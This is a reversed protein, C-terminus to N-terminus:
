QNYLFRGIWENFYWSAYSLPLDQKQAETKKILGKNSLSYIGVGIKESTHLTKEIPNESSTLVYSESAFWKNKNAQQFASSFNNLKAEIAKISELGFSEEINIKWKEDDRFILNCDVLTEITQLIDKYDFGHKISFDKSNVGKKNRYFYNLIKLDRKNLRSRRDSWKRYKKENFKVMVLDPYSNGIKPEFFFAHENKKSGIAIGCYEELLDNEKGLKRKRTRLGIEPITSEFKLISM